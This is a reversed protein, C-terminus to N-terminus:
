GNRRKPTSSGERQCQANERITKGAGARSIRTVGGTATALTGVHGGLSSRSSPCGSKSDGTTATLKSTANAFTALRGGGGDRAVPTWVERDRATATAKVSFQFSFVLSQCVGATNRTLDQQLGRIYNYVDGGEPLSARRDRDLRQM